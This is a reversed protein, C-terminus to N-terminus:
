VSPLTTEQMARSAPLSPREFFAMIELHTLERSVPRGHPCTWPRICALWQDIVRAMQDMNLPDGARVASHCAATALADVTSLRINGTEELHFLLEELSKRLVDESYLLPVHSFAVEGDTLVYSFGLSALTESVGHLTDALTPSVPYVLPLLLAQSAPDHREAREAFREYQVRELAIHQDVILLGTGTELLIYTRALQGLIRYDPHNPLLSTPPAAEEVPLSADPIPQPQAWLAGSAAPPTAYRTHHGGSNASYRAPPSFEGPRRAPGTVNGPSYFDMAASVIQRPAAGLVGDLARRVFSFLTNAKQYKVERKTPHVNVDVEDPPVTLFLVSVPFKGPVMMADYATEVAKSLVQCRLARGNVFTLLWKRSGRTVNPTGTLGTLRYGAEPDAFDIELLTEHAPLRYVESLARTLDSSGTTKVAEADELVLRFAIGPNSLALAQVMEQIHSLETQPRKMFKLRAPVNYFLDEIEFVTGPACGTEQLRVDGSPSVIARTGVAADATRSSCIVKSIAAVSALAEGRFGLTGLRFLDDAHHIKSTAHNRFAVELDDPAMGHGDDAIRLRRGGDWAAIEVRTAGADIANEVLEKVVSAPREVVEGAAIQNVLEPPLIRIKGMGQMIGGM